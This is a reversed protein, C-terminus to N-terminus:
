GGQPKRLNKLYASARQEFAKASMKAGVDAPMELAGKLKQYSLGTAVLQKMRPLLLETFLPELKHAVQQDFLDATLTKKKAKPVTSKAPQPDSSSGSAARTLGRSRAGM